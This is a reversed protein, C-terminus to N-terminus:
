YSRSCDVPEHPTCLSQFLYDPKGGEVWQLGQPLGNEDAEGLTDVLSIRNAECDIIHRIAVTDKNSEFVLVEFMHLGPLEPHDTITCRDVAVIREVDPLIMNLLANTEQSEVSHVVEISPPLSAAMSNDWNDRLHISLLLMGVGAAGIVLVKPARKGFLRFPLMVLGAIAFGGIVTSLIPILM